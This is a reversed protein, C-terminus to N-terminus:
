VKETAGSAPRGAQRCLSGNFGVRLHVDVKLWVLDAAFDPFRNSSGESWRSEIIINQGEIQGLERLGQHFAEIYPKATSPSGTLLVGIRSVKKAEQAEALRVSALILIIVCLALAKKIM